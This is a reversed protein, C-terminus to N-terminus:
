TQVATRSVEFWHSGNSVFRVVYYKGADTGLTLTGVSSCLTSHFTIVEDASGATTFIITVEDGSSGAGSFTITQDENDTVLDTYLTTGKAVTLSVSASPTLAVAAGTLKVTGTVAPITVTKSASTPDDVAIITYVTDATNGDFSLPTAGAVKGTVTVIDGIANGLGVTGNAAFAGTIISAPYQTASGISYTNANPLLDGSSTVSWRDNGLVAEDSASAAFAPVQAMFLCAIALLAMIKNIGKFM